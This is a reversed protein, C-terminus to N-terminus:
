LKKILLTKMLQYSQNKLIKGHNSVDEEFLGILKCASLFKVKSSKNGKPHKIM